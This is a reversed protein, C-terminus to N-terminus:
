LPSPEIFREKNLYLNYREEFGKYEKQNDLTDMALKQNEVALDWQEMSAYCAALTDIVFAEEYNSEECASLALGLALERKEISSDTTAYAWAISNKVSIDLEMDPTYVRNLVDFKQFHAAVHLVAYHNEFKPFQPDAGLDLLKLSISEDHYRLAYLLPTWKKKNITNIEPEYELLLNAYSGLKKGLAYSLPTDGENNTINIDIGSELLKKVYAPRDHKIALHLLSQGNTDTINIDAGKNILIDFIEERKNNMSYYLASYGSESVMNLDTGADILKSSISTEGEIISEMLANLGSKRTMNLDIGRRILIDVIEEYGKRAAFSLASGETNSFYNIDAGLDLLQEVVKPRNVITALILASRGSGKVVNVDVNRKLLETIIEDNQNEIAYILPTNGARDVFNINTGSNIYEMVDDNYSGKIKDILLYSDYNKYIEEIDAVTTGDNIIKNLKNKDRNIEWIEANKYKSLDDVIEIMGELDISNTKQKQSIWGEKTDHNLLKIDLSKHLITVNNAEINFPISVRIPSGRKAIRDFPIPQITKIRYNGEKLRIFKLQDKPQVRTLYEEEELNMQYEVIYDRDTENEATIKIVLIGFNEGADPLSSCATILILIVITHIIKKIM